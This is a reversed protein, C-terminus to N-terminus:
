EQGRRVPLGAARLLLWRAEDEQSMYILDKHRERTFDNISGPRSDWHVVIEGFERNYRDALSPSNRELPEVVTGVLTHDWRRHRVRDGIKLAPNEVPPVPPKISAMMKAHNWTITPLKM